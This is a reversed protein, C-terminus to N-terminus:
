KVNDCVYEGKVISERIYLITASDMGMYKAMFECMVDLLITETEQWGFGRDDVYMHAYIKRAEYMFPAFNICSNIDHYSIENDCLWEHLPSIHDIGNGKDRCTWVLVIAGYHALAHTVEKAYKRIPAFEPFHNAVTLTGDFDFAIIPGNANDTFKGIKM